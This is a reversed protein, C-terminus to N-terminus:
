YLIMLFFKKKSKTNYKIGKLITIPLRNKFIKVMIIEINNIIKNIVLLILKLKLYKVKKNKIIKINKNKFLINETLGFFESIEDTFKILDTM